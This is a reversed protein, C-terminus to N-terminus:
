QAILDLLFALQLDAEVGQLSFESEAVSRGEHWILSAHDGYTCRWEMDEEKEEEDNTTYNVQLCPRHERNPHLTWTRTVNM